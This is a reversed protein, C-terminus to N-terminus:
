IKFFEELVCITKTMFTIIMNLLFEHKRTYLEYKGNYRDHDHYLLKYIWSAKEIDYDQCEGTKFFIMNQKRLTGSVMQFKEFDLKDLFRILYNYEYNKNKKLYSNKIVDIQDVFYTNKFSEHSFKTLIMFACEDSYVNGYLEGYEESNNLNIKEIENRTFMLRIKKALVSTEYFETTLLVELQGNIM